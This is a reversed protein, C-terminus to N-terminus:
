SYSNRFLLYATNHSLFIHYFNSSSQRLSCFSFSTLCESSSISFESRNLYEGYLSNFSLWRFATSSISACISLPFTFRTTTFPIGPLPLVITATYRIFYRLCRLTQRSFSQIRQAASKAWFSSSIWRGFYKHISAMVPVTGKQYWSSFIRYRVPRHLM